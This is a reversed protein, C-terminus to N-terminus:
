DPPEYLISELHKPVPSETPLSVPGESTLLPRDFKVYHLFFVWRNAGVQRESWPVQWNSREKGDVKQTVKRWDPETESEIEFLHCRESADVVPHVGIIRM